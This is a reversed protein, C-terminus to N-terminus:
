YQEEVFFGDEAGTDNVELNEENYAEDNDDGEQTENPENDRLQDDQNDDDSNEEYQPSEFVPSEDDIESNNEDATKEESLIGAAVNNLSDVQDVASDREEVLEHDSSEKKSMTHYQQNIFSSQFMSDPQQLSEGEYESNELVGANHVNELTDEVELERASRMPVDSSQDMKNCVENPSNDDESAYNDNLDANANNDDDDGNADNDDVVTYGEEHIDANDSASCHKENSEYEDDETYRLDEDGTAVCDYDEEHYGFLKGMSDAELLAEMVDHGPQVKQKEGGSNETEKDIDKSELQKEDQGSTQVDEKKEVLEDNDGGSQEASFDDQEQLYDEFPQMVYDYVLDINYKPKSSSNAQPKKIDGKKRKPSFIPNHQEVLYTDAFSKIRDERTNNMRLGVSPMDHEKKKPSMSNYLDGVPQFDRDKKEKESKRMAIEEDLTRHHDLVSLDPHYTCRPISKIDSQLKKNKLKRAKEEQLRIHNRKIMRVDEEVEADYYPNEKKDFQLKSSTDKGSMLEADTLKKEACFPDPKSSRVSIHAFRTLRDKLPMLKLEAIGSKRLEFSENSPREIVQFHNNWGDPNKQSKAKKKAKKLKKSLKSSSQTYNRSDSRFEDQSWSLGHFSKSQELMGGKDLSYSTPNDISGASKATMVHSEGPPLFLDHPDDWVVSMQRSKITSEDEAKPLPPAHLLKSLIAPQLGFSHKGPEGTPAVEEHRLRVSMTSPHFTRSASSPRHGFSCMVPNRVSEDRYPKLLPHTDPDVIKKAKKDRKMVPPVLTYTHQGSEERIINNLVRAKTRLANADGRKVCFKESRLKDGKTLDSGHPNRNKM